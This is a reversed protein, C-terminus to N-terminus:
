ECPKRRSDWLQFPIQEVRQARLVTGDSVKHQVRREALGEDAVPRQLFSDLSLSREVLALQSVRGDAGFKNRFLLHALPDASKRLSESLRVSSPFM